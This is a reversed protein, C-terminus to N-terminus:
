KEAILPLRLLFSKLLITRIKHSLQYPFVVYVTTLTKREKTNKSSVVQIKKEKTKEKKEEEKEEEKEEREKKKIREEKKKIM